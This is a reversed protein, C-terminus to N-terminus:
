VHLLTRCYHKVLVHQPSLLNYLDFHSLRDLNTSHHFLGKINLSQTKTKKTQAVRTQKDKCRFHSVLIIDSM